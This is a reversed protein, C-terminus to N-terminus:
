IQNPDSLLTAHPTRMDQLIYHYQIGFFLFLQFRVNLLLSLIIFGLVKKM